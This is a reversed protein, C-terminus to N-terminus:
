SCCPSRCAPSSCSPACGRAGRTRARGWAHVVGLVYVVVTVRHAKRWLKAGIHRRLYFSLGLVAALYAAIVGLGSFLPRYDMSFPVLM